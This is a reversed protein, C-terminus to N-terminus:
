SDTTIDMTALAPCLPATCVLARYVIEFDVACEM